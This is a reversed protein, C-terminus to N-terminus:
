LLPIQFESANLCIGLTVHTTLLAAPIPVWLKGVAFFLSKAIINYSNRESPTTCSCTRPLFQKCIQNQEPMLYDHILPAIDLCHHKRSSTVAFQPNFLLEIGKDIVGPNKLFGVVIGSLSM